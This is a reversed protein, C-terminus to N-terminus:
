KDIKEVIKITDKIDNIFPSVIKMDGNYFDVYSMYLEKKQEQLRLM